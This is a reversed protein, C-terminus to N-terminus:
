SREGGKKLDKIYKERTRGFRTNEFNGLTSFQSVSKNMESVLEYQSENQKKLPSEGLHHSVGKGYLM